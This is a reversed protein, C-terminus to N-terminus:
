DAILEGKLIILSFQVGGQYFSLIFYMILLVANPFIAM